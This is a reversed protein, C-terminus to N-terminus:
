LRCIILLSCAIYITFTGREEQYSVKDFGMYFDNRKREFIENRM